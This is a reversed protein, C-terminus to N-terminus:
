RRGTSAPSMRTGLWRISRAVAVPAATRGVEAALDAVSTGALEDQWASEARWMAGAVACVPPSARVPARGPGRRRIETCRFFPEDGEVARVADLLTITRAPRALRYGGGRGPTSSVLGARALAQLTKALYPAPIGHYEALAGASLSAGAPLLSLVVLCHAGWEVGENSRM